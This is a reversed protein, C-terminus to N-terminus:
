CNYKYRTKVFNETFVVCSRMTYVLKIRTKLYASLKNVNKHLLPVIKNPKISM